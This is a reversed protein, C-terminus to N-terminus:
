PVTSPLETSPPSTANMSSAAPMASWPVGPRRLTRTLAGRGAYGGRLQRHGDPGRRRTRAFRGHVAGTGLTTRGDRLEYIGAVGRFAPSTRPRRETVSEGSCPM